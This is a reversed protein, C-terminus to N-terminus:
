PLKVVLINELNGGQGQGRSKPTFNSFDDPGFLKAKSGNSKGIHAVRFVKQTKLATKKGKSEVRSWKNVGFTYRSCEKCELPKFLTCCLPLFRVLTTPFRGFTPVHLAWVLTTNNRAVSKM